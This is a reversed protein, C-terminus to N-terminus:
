INTESTISKNYKKSFIRIALYKCMKKEKSYVSPSLFNTLISFLMLQTNTLCVLSCIYPYWPPSLGTFLVPLNPYIYIVISIIYLIPLYHSGVTCCPSSQVSHHGSHSPLGLPFPYIYIYSQNMKSNLLFKYLM